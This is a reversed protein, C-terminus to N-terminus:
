KQRAAFLVAHRFRAPAHAFVASGTVIVWFLAFRSSADVAMWGVLLLKVLVAIGSVERLHSPKSLVDLAFMALGTLAVAWVADSAAVPAGLLNAGLFIVAILHLGRLLVNIWRRWAFFKSETM